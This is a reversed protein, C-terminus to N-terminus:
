DVYKDYSKTFDNNFNDYITENCNSFKPIAKSYIGYGKRFDPKNLFYEFEM